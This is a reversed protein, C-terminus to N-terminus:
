FDEMVFIIAVVLALNSAIIPLAPLKSPHKSLFKHLLDSNHTSEDLSAIVKLM